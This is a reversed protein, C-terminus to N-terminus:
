SAQFKYLDVYLDAQRQRGLVLYSTLCLCWPMLKRVIAVNSYVESAIQILESVLWTNKNFYKM